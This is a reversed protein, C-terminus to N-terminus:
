RGLLDPLRGPLPREHGGYDLQFPTMGDNGGYGGFSQEEQDYMGARVKASQQVVKAAM